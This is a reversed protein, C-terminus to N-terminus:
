LWKKQRFFLLMGVCGILMIGIIIWFGWPQDVFPMYKANMGFIAALLTLPFVIVSFITLTKMIDTMQNNLLSENTNNLVEVMEKQNDLIEWIRKSHEVLDAYYKKIAGKEVISSEIELLKQFINKHNQIIKRVNIINRRLNLIQEVAEKQKRDFILDEIEALSISNEDLLPYCSNILVNLIEYLLIASSELSYALLSAPNKRGLNFFDALVKLSNNHATILFGHGIFFDVESAVIRGGKFTPFHLILFLYKGGRFIQPRQFSVAASASRLHALDFAYNRRLYDIETKGANVINLWKLRSASRPNDVMLEEIRDSIKRYNSM